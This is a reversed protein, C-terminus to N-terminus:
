NEKKMCEKDKMIINFKLLNDKEAALVLEEDENFQEMKDKMITVVENDLTM